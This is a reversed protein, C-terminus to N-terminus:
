PSVVRIMFCAFGTRHADGTIPTVLTKFRCTGPISDTVCTGTAGRNFCPNASEMVISSYIM